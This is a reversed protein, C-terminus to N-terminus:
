NKFLNNAFRNFADASVYDPLNHSTQANGAATYSFDTSDFVNRNYRNLLSFMENYQCGLTSRGLNLPQSVLETLVEDNSNYGVVFRYNNYDMQQPRATREYYEDFTNQGPISPALMGIKLINSPTQYVDSEYRKEFMLDTNTEATGPYKHVNFLATTIVSAGLGHTVVYVTPKKLKNLIRRLELGTNCSSYKANDWITQLRNNAADYCGDWYVEVFFLKENPLRNSLAIRMMDYQSGSGTEGMPTKDAGHVLFIVRDYGKGQKNIYDATRQVLAAQLPDNETNLNEVDKRPTAGYHSCLQEYTKGNNFYYSKLMCYNNKMDADSISQDPYMYGLRDFYIRYVNMDAYPPQEMKSKVEGFPVYLDRTPLVFSFLLAAAPIILLFKKM